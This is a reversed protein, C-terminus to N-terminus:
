KKLKINHIGAPIFDDTIYITYMVDAGYKTTLNIDSKSFSVLNNDVYFIHDGLFSPIAVAFYTNGTFEDFIDVNKAYELDKYLNLIDSENLTQQQSVGYYRYFADNPYTAYLDTKTEISLDNAEALSYVEKSIKEWGIELEKKSEFMLEINDTRFFNSSFSDPSNEPIWEMEGVSAISYFTDIAPQSYNSSIDRQMVFINKNINHAIEVKVKLLYGALSTKPATEQRFSDSTERKLILVTKQMYINDSMSLKVALILTQM